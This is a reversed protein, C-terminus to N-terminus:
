ATVVVKTGVPAFTWLQIADPRAQRICGHSRPFGLQSRTQVLHGDKTPISHFGIPANDGRTFRVFFEMTGSDDIGVAHRSRSYVAYTGPSLNDYLSGSVLYTRRVSTNGDVLWVRQRSIDFVVRKGAGSAAPLSVDVPEQATVQPPATSRSADPITLSSLTAQDTAGADSSAAAPPPESPLLGVGGLVAVLTVLLASAAACARGRRVRHTRPGAM